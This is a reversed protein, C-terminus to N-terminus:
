IFVAQHALISACTQTWITFLSSAAFDQIQQHYSNSDTYIQWFPCVPLFPAHFKLWLQDSDGSVCRYPKQSRVVDKRPKMEWSKCCNQDLKSQSQAPSGPAFYQYQRSDTDAFIDCKLYMEVCVNKLVLLTNATVEVKSGNQYFFNSVM